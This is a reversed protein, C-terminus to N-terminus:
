ERDFLGLFIDIDLLDQECRERQQCHRCKPMIDYMEQKTHTYLEYREEL